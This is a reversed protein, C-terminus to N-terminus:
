KGVIAETCSHSKKDRMQGYSQNRVGSTVRENVGADQRITQRYITITPMQRKSNKVDDSSTQENHFMQVLSVTQSELLFPGNYQVTWAKREPINPKAQM